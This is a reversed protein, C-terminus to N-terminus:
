EIESGTETVLASNNKLHITSGPNAKFLSGQMCTFVTPDAFVKKGNFFIPDNPRVPTLGQDLLITNGPLLNVKENLVIDGCWRVDNKVDYDNWRICIKVDGNARQEVVRISLGNLYVKRNDFSGPHLHYNNMGVDYRQYTLWPFPAPNTSISIKDGQYYADFVSGLFTYQLYGFYEKSLEVGNYKLKELMYTEKPFILNNGNKDVPHFSTIGVGTFPNAYADNTEGMAFTKSVSTSAPTYATFDFKGFRNIPTIFNIRADIFSSFNDNGVQLNLYIGRPVRLM